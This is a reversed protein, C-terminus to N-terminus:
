GIFGAERYHVLEAISHRIDSLARHPKGGKHAYEAEPRWRRVLEKISSVDVTRYSFTSELGRARQLLFRRDFGVSSGAMPAPGGLDSYARVFEIAEAEAHRLPFAEGSLIEDLLGSKAHMGRVFESMSLLAARNSPRVTWAQAAVEHLDDDTVVIGIELIEDVREDLGTTELDLWNLM